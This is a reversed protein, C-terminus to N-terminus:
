GRSNKHVEELQGLSYTVMIELGYSRLSHSTLGILVGALLVREAMLFLNRYLEAFPCNCLFKSFYETCDFWFHITMM